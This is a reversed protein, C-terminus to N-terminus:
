PTCGMCPTRVQFDGDQAKDKFNRIPDELGKLIATNSETSLMIDRKLSLMRHWLDLAYCPETIETVEKLIHQINEAGEAVTLLKDGVQSNIATRRKEDAERILNGIVRQAKGQPPLCTSTL